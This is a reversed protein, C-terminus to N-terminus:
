LRRGFPDADLALLRWKLGTYRGDARNNDIMARVRAPSGVIIVLKKGRTVATYLLNRTMLMPPFNLVPIVVAPFESGQSKHVTVAYALDIEDLMDGAYEIVRDDMRVTMTKDEADIAEVIGMDGNFVGEGETSLYDTRWEAGYNNKLQMVKDGERFTVSGIRLEAKDEAPPNIVEQLMANLSPAGLMGRKTPTLVQIDDASHVFDFGAEIRGGVLERITDSVSMESTKSIIYFDNGSQQEPYEGSNILHSNTVIGSGEAQRFIERLRIVPICESAIMDRLVNGAGVPPLQDADGTFIIRTGEKVANLLGDMLMLDIMSAEDVIIVDEELPNEENRGFNLIDEEESWVFELMRHITMAPKGSAEEMRKAARGTPAALAVSFGASDFLKVLTNIITTKGTGPGGTIITINNTLCELIARKQEVSLEIGDGFPDDSAMRVADLFNEAQLPIPKLAANRIKMLEHAVRQEAHYYGYLYIVATDNMRDEELEGAFVMDRLSERVNDMMVDLFEATKEVLYNEPMLTSGSAAWTRLMHRIGSEIRVSSEPEMGLKAAIADARRFNIGRIDEALIYPNESVIRVSDKGYIRYVRVAENMEIGLERLEISTGAFERSEGFSETIKVLTKPGIGSITLLKEPTEEIVTLTEDGFVDVIQSATKPGIGRINGASLFELIADAGEPMMEEYSSVSFQEGYKPHITFRGELRYKAGSKPEAFSGAIRIAGAETDFVAVTYGNEPNNFIIKGLKGEQQM